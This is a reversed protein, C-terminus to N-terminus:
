SLHVPSYARLDKLWEFDLGQYDTPTFNLWSKPPSSMRETLSAALHLLGTRGSEWDVRVGLYVAADAGPGGDGLTSALAASTTLRQSKACFREVVQEATQANHELWTNVEALPPSAAGDLQGGMEADPARQAPPPEVQTVARVERAVVSPAL